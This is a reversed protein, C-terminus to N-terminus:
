RRPFATTKSKDSALVNDQNGEGDTGILAVVNQVYLPSGLERFGNMIVGLALKLVM